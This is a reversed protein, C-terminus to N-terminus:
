EGIKLSYNEFAHPMHYWVFFDPLVINAAIIIYHILICLYMTLVTGSHRYCINEVIGIIALGFLLSADLRCAGNM